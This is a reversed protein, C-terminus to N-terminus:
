EIWHFGRGCLRYAQRHLRIRHVDPGARTSRIELHHVAAGITLPIDAILIKAPNGRPSIWDVGPWTEARDFEAIGFREPTKGGICHDLRVVDPSGDRGVRDIFWPKIYTQGRM